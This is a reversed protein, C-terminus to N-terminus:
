SIQESVDIWLFDGSPFSLPAGSLVVAFEAEYEGAVLQGSAFLYSMRGAEAPTLITATADVVAAGGGRPRMHFTPLTANGLNIPRGKGDVMTATITPEDGATYRKDVTKNLATM